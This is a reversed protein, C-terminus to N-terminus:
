VGCLWLKHCFCFFTMWQDGKNFFFGFHQFFFQGKPLDLGKGM